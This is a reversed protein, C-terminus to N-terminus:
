PTNVQLEAYTRDSLAAIARMRDYSYVLKESIEFLKFGEIYRLTLVEGYISNIEKVKKIKTQIKLLLRENEFYRKKWEAMLDEMEVIFDKMTKPPFGGDVLEGTFLGKAMAAKHNLENIKTELIALNRKETLYSKLEKRAEEITM